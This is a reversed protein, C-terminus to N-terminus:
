LLSKKFTIDYNLPIPLADPQSPELPLQYFKTIKESAAVLDYFSELYKGSQAFSGLILTIILEAAVLQGLTLQGEVAFVM